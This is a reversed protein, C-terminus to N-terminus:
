RPNDPRRKEREFIMVSELLKLILTVTQIGEEVVKAPDGKRYFYENIEKAFEGYEEAIWLLWESLPRENIGHAQIQAQNEVQIANVLNIWQSTLRHDKFDMMKPMNDCSYTVTFSM